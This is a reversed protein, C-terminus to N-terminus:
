ERFILGDENGGEADLGYQCVMVVVGSIIRCRNCSVLPLAGQLLTELSFARHRFLLVRGVDFGPLVPGDM